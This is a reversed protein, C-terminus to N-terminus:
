VLCDGGKVFFPKHLSPFITGCWLGKCCEYPAEWRQMPVTAIALYPTCPECGCGGGLAENLASAAGTPSPKALVSGGSIVGSSTKENM